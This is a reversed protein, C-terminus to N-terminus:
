KLFFSKSNLIPGGFYFLTSQLQKSASNSLVTTACIVFLSWLLFFMKTKYLKWTPVDLSSNKKNCLVSVTLSQNKAVKEEEFCFFISKLINNLHCLLCYNVCKIQIFCLDPVRRPAFKLFSLFTSFTVCDIWRQAGLWLSFLWQCFTPLAFFPSPFYGLPLTPLCILHFAARAHM